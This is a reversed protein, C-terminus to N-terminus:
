HWRRSYIREIHQKFRRLERPNEALINALYSALFGYAYINGRQDTPSIRYPNTRRIEALIWESLKQHQSSSM